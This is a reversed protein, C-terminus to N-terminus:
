PAAIVDSLVTFVISCKATTFILIM